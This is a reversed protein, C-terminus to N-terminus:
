EAGSGILIDNRGAAVEVELAPGVPANLESQLLPLQRLLPRLKGQHQTIAAPTGIGPGYDIRSM